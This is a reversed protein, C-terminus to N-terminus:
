SENRYRIVAPSTTKVTAAAPAAVAGTESIMAPGLVHVTVRDAAEDDTTHKGPTSGLGVAPGGLASSRVWWFM